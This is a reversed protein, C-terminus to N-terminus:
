LTDDDLFAADPNEDGLFSADPSELDSNASDEPYEEASDPPTAAVEEDTETGADSIGGVEPGAGEDSVQSTPNEGHHVSPGQDTAAARPTLFFETPLFVDDNVGVPEHATRPGASDNLESPDGGVLATDPIATGQFPELRPAPADIEGTIEAVALDVSNQATWAVPVDDPMLVGGVMPAPGAPAALPAVGWEDYLWGLDEEGTPTELNAAVREAVPDASLAVATSSVPEPVADPEQQPAQSMLAALRGDVGDDLWSPRAGVMRVGEPPAALEWVRAVEDRRYWNGSTAGITWTAGDDGPLRLERLLEAAGMESARGQLFAERVQQTLQELAVFEASLETQDIDFESRLTGLVGPMLKPVPGDWQAASM